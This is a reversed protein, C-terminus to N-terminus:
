GTVPEPRGDPLTPREPEPLTITVRKTAPVGTVGALVPTIAIRWSGATRLRITCRAIRRTTGAGTTVTCTGRVTRVARPALRNTQPIAAIRYTTDPAADFTAVIPGETDRAGSWTIGNPTSPTAPASPATVTAAPTSPDSAAPSPPATPTVANSANSPGSTGFGSTATATFTYSVGNTLGTVDCSGSSGTITCTRSPDEVARVTISTPTGGGGTGQSVTITVQGNGAMAVPTTPADPPCPSAAYQSTLFPYTSGDCIGWVASASWGNAIDWSAATYTSRTKAQATALGTGLGASTARNSTQTDWFSGSVTLNASYSSSASYPALLGGSTGTVTYCGMTCVTRTGAGGTVLGTSYSRAITVSYSGGAVDVRGVLGAVGEYGVGGTVAGSAYSDSIEAPLGGFASRAVGVLGGVQGGSATVTGSSSSRRIIAEAAWGVLGGALSSATVNVTSHVNTLTTPRDALGILAGVGSSGSVNVTGALRLNKIEAGGDTYSFLGLYAGNTTISL